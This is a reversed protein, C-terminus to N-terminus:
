TKVSPTRNPSRFCRRPCPPRLPRRVWRSAASSSAEVSAPSGAALEEAALEEATLELRAAPAAAAGARRGAAPAQSPRPSGRSVGTRSSAVFSVIITAKSMAALEAAALQVAQDGMSTAEEQVASRPCGGTRLRAAPEHSAEAGGPKGVGGSAQVALTAGARILLGTEARSPEPSGNGMWRGSRVGSSRVTPVSRGRVNPTGAISARM